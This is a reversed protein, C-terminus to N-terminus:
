INKSVTITGNVTDYTVGLYTMMQLPGSVSLYVVLVAVEGEAKEESEEIGVDRLLKGMAEFSEVAKERTAEAGGFDDM